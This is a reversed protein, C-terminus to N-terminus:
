CGPDCILVPESRKKSLSGAKDRQASEVTLLWLAGTLGRGQVGGPTAGDLIQMAVAAKGRRRGRGGPGGPVGDPLFDGPIAINAQAKTKQIVCM